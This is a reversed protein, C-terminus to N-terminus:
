WQNPLSITIVQSGAKNLTFRYRQHIM